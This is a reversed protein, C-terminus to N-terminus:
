CSSFWLSIQRVACLFLISLFPNRFDAYANSSTCQVLPCFSFQVTNLNCMDVLNGNRYSVPAREVM